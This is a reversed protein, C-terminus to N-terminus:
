PTDGDSGGGLARHATTFLLFAAGLTLPEDADVLSLRNRIAELAARLKVIEAAADDLRDGAIEACTSCMGQGTLEDRRTRDTM